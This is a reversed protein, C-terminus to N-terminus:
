LVIIHLSALCLTHFDPPLLSALSLPLPCTSSPLPVSLSLSSYHSIILPLLLFSISSLSSSFYFAPSFLPNLNRLRYTCQSQSPLHLHRCMLTKCTFQHSINASIPSIFRRCKISIDANNSSNTIPPQFYHICFYFTDRLCGLGLIVASGTSKM